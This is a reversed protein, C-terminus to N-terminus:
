YFFDHSVQSISFFMETISVYLILNLSIRNSYNIDKIRLIIIIVMLLLSLLISISNFIYNITIFVNNQTTIAATNTIQDKDM